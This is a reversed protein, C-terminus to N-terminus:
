VASLWNLLVDPPILENLCSKLLQNKQEFLDPGWRGTFTECPAAIEFINRGLFIRSFRASAYNINGRKDVTLVVDRMSDVLGELFDRQKLAQIQSESIERIDEMVVSIMQEEGRKQKYASVYICAERPLGGTRLSACIIKSYSAKASDEIFLSWSKGLNVGIGLKFLENFDKAGSNSAGGLFRSMEENMDFMKGSTDLTAVGLPLNEM